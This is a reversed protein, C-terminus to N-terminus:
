ERSFTKLSSFVLYCLMGERDEGVRRKRKVAPTPSGEMLPSAQTFIDAAANEHLRRFREVAVNKEQIRTGALKGEKFKAEELIRPRVM